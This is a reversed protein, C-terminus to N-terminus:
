LPPEGVGIQELIGRPAGGRIPDPRIEKIRGHDLRYFFYQEPIAVRIGTAPVPTMGPIALTGLHTGGQRWRIAIMGDRMEPADHDYHWDPFGAYLARLMGLFREKNLTATATVFVSDDALTASIM